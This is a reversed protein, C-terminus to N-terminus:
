CLLSDDGGSGENIEILEDTRFSPDERNTTIVAPLQFTPWATKADSEL